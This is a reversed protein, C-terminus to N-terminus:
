EQFDKKQFAVSEEVKNKQIKGKNKNKEKLNQNIFKKLIVFAFDM